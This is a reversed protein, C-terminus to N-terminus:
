HRNILCHVHCTRVARVRENSLCLVCVFCLHLYLSLIFCVNLAQGTSSFFQHSAYFLFVLAAASFFSLLCCRSFFLFIYSEVSAHLLLLWCVVFFLLSDWDLKKNSAGENPVTHRRDLHPSRIYKM